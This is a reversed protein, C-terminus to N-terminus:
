GHAVEETKPPTAPPLRRELVTSVCRSVCAGCICVDRPGQFLHAVHNQDEGCFDCALLEATKIRM